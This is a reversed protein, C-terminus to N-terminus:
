RNNRIPLCLSVAFTHNAEQTEFSGGHYQLIGRCTNLGINTSERQSRLRSIGNKVTLEAVNDKRQLSIVVPRAPDAYKLLNSYLNDFARHLLDLNVDIYGHLPSFHTEATFGESELSFAYESWIQWLLTDADQTELNPQEWEASYVLFYEFMEDAMTKIRLTQELSKEVFQQRQIEDRYKERKLLELYALLSTLPTRLDHSMATVLQSNASRTMEETHQHSLISRRMQDIGFALQGLEDNGQLTVPYELAGGSLIDLEDKLRKIYAIKRHLLLVFCTSFTIFAGVLALAIAFIYYMDGAYCFLYANWRSGDALELSYASNSHLAAEDLTFRFGKPMPSTYLSNKGDSLELYVRKGSICWQTLDQIQSPSIEEETVYEQLEEFRKDAMRRAFDQGYVTLTLLANISFFLLVFAAAAAILSLLVGCLLQASLSSKIKKVM